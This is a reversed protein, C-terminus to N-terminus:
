VLFFDIGSFLPRRRKRYVVVVVGYVMRSQHGSGQSIYDWCGGAGWNKAIENGKVWLFKERTAQTHYQAMCNEIM